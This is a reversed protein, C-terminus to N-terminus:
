DNKHPQLYQCFAHFHAPISRKKHSVLFFSRKMTLGKVMVQILQNNKIENAVALKSLVTLGLGAKTAEKISATSGFTAAVNSKHVRIDTKSFFNEMVKRTGSGKERMLFPLNTMEKPSVTKKKWLDPSAVMILEDDFFPDCQLRGSDMRAGVIGCLLEHDLVMATIKSTDEIIVEFSVKPHKKRFGAILSPLLYTGPITSAGILITGSIEQGADVVVERLLNVEELVEMARPYLLDGAKTPIISRGVRDFLKTELEAELNKIHESITPQTINLQHSAKTFSNNRYVATFIKLHHFDM